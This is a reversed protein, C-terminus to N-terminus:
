KGELLEREAALWDEMDNGQTGGRRLYVEYARKAIEEQTPKRKRGAGVGPKASAPASKPAVAVDPRKAPVVTPKAM